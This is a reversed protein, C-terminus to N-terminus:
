NEWRNNIHFYLSVAVYNNTNVDDISWHLFQNPFHMHISKNILYKYLAKFDMNILKTLYVVNSGLLKGRIQQM